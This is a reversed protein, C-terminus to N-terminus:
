EKNRRMLYDEPTMVIIEFRNWLENAISLIPKDWTLFIDRKLLYHAHLHDWDRWDPVRAGRKKPTDSIANSFEKINKDGLIDRGLSWYGLSTMSAVEKINIFPLEVIRDFLPPLPVDERIRATVALDVKGSSALSLLIEIVKSRDQEKWYELLLNTDLTLRTINHSVIQPEEM